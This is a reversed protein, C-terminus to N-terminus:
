DSPASPFRDSSSLSEAVMILDELPVGSDISVTTGGSVRASLVTASVSDLARLGEVVSWTENGSLTLPSGIRLPDKEGLDPINTQWIHILPRGTDSYWTDVSSATTGIVDDPQFWAVHVLSYGDPLWGPTLLAFDVEMRATELLTIAQARRLEEEQAPDELGSVQSMTAILAAACAATGAWVLATSRRPATPFRNRM